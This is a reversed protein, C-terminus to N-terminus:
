APTRPIRRSKAPTPNAPSGQFRRVEALIDELTTFPQYVLRAHYVRREDRRQPGGHITYDWAPGRVANCGTPSYALGFEDERFMMLFVFDDVLGYYFRDVWRFPTPRFGAAEAAAVVAPTEHEIAQRLVPDDSRHQDWRKGAPDFPRWVLTKSRHAVKSVELWRPSSEGEVVGRMYLSTNQVQNMYSAFLLDSSQIDSDPWATFAQDVCNESLTFDILVNLGSADAAKQALRVSLPGTTEITMPAVRPANWKDQQAGSPPVLNCIEYNLGASTFINKNQRRDMLVAVGNYGPLVNDSIHILRPSNDTFRATLPGCTM